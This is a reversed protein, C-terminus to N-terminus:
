KYLLNVIVENAAVGGTDNDAVGTTTAYAIGTAFNIGNAWEVNAGAGPPIPITLVPTDSGVTPASAKNYIKLYRVAANANYLFWGGVIGASAKASTANTSAGSLLRSVSWGGGTTPTQSVWITGQSSIPIESYDGAAVATTPTDRRVGWVAVGTDTGGAVADKAKGLHAASTGPTVSTGIATVSTVTSVTGVNLNAATQNAVQVSSFPWFPAQSLRTHCQVGTTTGTIGTSIRARFYRYRIPGAFYRNTSAAVSYNTVPLNLPSALDYLPAAVWTSNDNSVEFTVVGATVTGAAPIIQMSISHYGACDTGTTGASANIINNNLTLQSGQGTIQSDSNAKVNVWQGSTTDGRARDWTTGNYMAMYAIGESMDNENSRADRPRVSTQRQAWKHYITQLRFAGQTVGGNTYVVRLYRGTIQVGVTKGSSASVTYTDVVDWNTGNSSQQISLGDTASVQDAFVLITACSYETVEDATGTFAVGNALTSTSSNNTSIFGLGAERVSLAAATSAPMSTGVTATNGGQVLQTAFTGANDVTLSGSNDDVHVVNTIGTLTTVTAVNWTGSQTVPLTGAMLTEAGGPNLDLAVITTKVSSRDLSRYIDGGTMTNLTTNDAM